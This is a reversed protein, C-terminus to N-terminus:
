KVLKVNIPNDWDCASSEDTTEPDIVEWTIVYENNDQDVAPAIYTDGEDSVYPDQTTKLVQGEWTIVTSNHANLENFNTMEIM